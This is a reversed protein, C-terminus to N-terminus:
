IIIKDIINKMTTLNKQNMLIKMNMKKIDRNRNNNKKNYYNNNCNFKNKSNRKKM